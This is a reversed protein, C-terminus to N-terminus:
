MYLYFLDAFSLKHLQRSSIHCMCATEATVDVLSYVMEQIVVAAGSHFVTLNVVRLQSMDNYM